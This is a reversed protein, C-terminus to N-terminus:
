GAKHEPTLRPRTSQRGFILIVLTTLLALGAAMQWGAGYSGSADILWGFLPPMAVISIRNLTLVLGTTIGVKDPEARESVITIVIGAWSLVSLGTAAAMIYVFVMNVGAGMLSIGFLTLTAIVGIIAPIMIRNNRFLKSDSVAGWFVRGVSSLIQSLSLIGGALVPSIGIDKVLFLLFYSMFVWQLGAFVAGWSFIVALSRNRIIIKVNRVFDSLSFMAPSGNKVPADRYYVWFVVAVLVVLLSITGGAMRWGLALALAPLAAATIAGGVSFGTEKFSMAFGLIRRPIWGTITISTAPMIPTSITGIMTVALLLMIFSGTFPLVAMVAATGFLSLLVVKKVGYVDALWGALLGIFIGTVMLASTLMGVQSNSLALDSQIFPYLVPIGQLSTGFIVMTLFALCIVLWVPPAPAAPTQPTKHGEDPLTLM